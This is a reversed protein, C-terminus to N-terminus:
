LMCGIIQETLDLMDLWQTIQHHLRRTYMGFRANPGAEFQRVEDATYTTGYTENLQESVAQLSFGRLSRKVKLREVLSSVESFSLPPAKDDNGADNEVSGRSHFSYESSGREHSRGGPASHASRESNPSKNKPSLSASDSVDHAIGQPSSAVSGRMQSSATKPPAGRTASSSQDAWSGKPVAGHVSSSSSAVGHASSKSSTNSALPSCVDCGSTESPSDMDEVCHGVVEERAYAVDHDLVIGPDPSSDNQQVRKQDAAYGSQITEPKRGSNAKMGSMTGQIRHPLANDEEFSLESVHESSYDELVDTERNEPTNDAETGIGVVSHPDRWGSWASRKKDSAEGSREDQQARKRKRM